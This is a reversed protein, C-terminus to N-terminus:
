RRARRECWTSIPRRRLARAPATSIGSTISRAAAGADPRADLDHARPQAAAGAGPLRAPLRARIAAVARARRLFLATRPMAREVARGREETDKCFSPSWSLALVYFDFKGPQNRQSVQASRTTRARVRRRARHRHSPSRIRRHSLRYQGHSAGESSLFRRRSSKGLYRSCTLFLIAISRSRRGHSHARCNAAVAVNRSLIRVDIAHARQSPVRRRASRTTPGTATSASWAGSCAGARLRDHRRRRRDFLPGDALPRRLDARPRQLLPASHHRRGLAPLGGRPHPRLGHDAPRFELVPRGQHCVAASHDYLAWADDCAPLQPISARASCISTRKLGTRPVPRRARCRRHDAGRRNGCLTDARMTEHSSCSM